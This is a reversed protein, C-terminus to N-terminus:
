KFVKDARMLVWQPITVGIQQATKLNIVFEFKTPREVPLDAPKTGKLVRDVYTASRYFLDAVNIGYSMLGGAEVYEKQEFMSAVRSKAAFDLIKNRQTFFIPSAWVALANVRGKAMASFANDLDGPTQVELLQLQVGLGKAVSDVEKLLTAHFAPNMLVAVRSIKPVAEKLLELRKGHLEEFASVGTANGEPRALSAVGRGVPDGYRVFVIPITTSAKKAALSTLGGPCCAYIVDVKLRVLEAALNPLREHKGESYRYEIVINQGEVYGLERLGQRFADSAPLNQASGGSLFGIRWVKKAQQAQAPFSLALLMASLTLGFFKKGVSEEWANGSKAGHEKSNSSRRGAADCDPCDHRRNFCKVGM